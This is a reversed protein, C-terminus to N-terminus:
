IRNLKVIIPSGVSDDWYSEIQDLSESKSLFPM